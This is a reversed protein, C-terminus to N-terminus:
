YMCTMEKGNTRGARGTLLLQTCAAAIAFVYQRVFMLYNPPTHTTSV